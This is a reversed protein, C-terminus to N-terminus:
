YIIQLRYTQISVEYIPKIGDMNLPLFYEPTYISAPHIYGNRNIPKNIVAPIIM